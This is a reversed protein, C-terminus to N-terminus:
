FGQSAAGMPRLKKCEPDSPESFSIQSYRWSEGREEVAVLYYHGRKRETNWINSMLMMVIISSLLVLSYM